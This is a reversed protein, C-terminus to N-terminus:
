VLPLLMKVTFENDSYDIIMEGNYTEVARRMSKIGLGHSNKDKKTTCINNKNDVVIYNTKTNSCKMIFFKEIINGEIIIKKDGENICDCAEIANDILNSFITCVDEDEIFGCKTFNINCIFDIKKYICIEKKETLVIDLITNGTNFINNYHELKSEISNVYSTSDYNRKNLEKICILHNKMDHYLESIKRQNEKIKLYYKYENDIKENLSNIEVYNKSIIIIRNIGLILSINSMFLIVSVFVVEIKDIRSDSMTMLMYKYIIFISVLNAIIPVIMYIIDKKIFKSKGDFLKYMNLGIILLIKGILIAEYRYINSDLLINMSELSNIGFVIGMSLANIGTVVTWYGIVIIVSKITDVEYKNIYIHWTLIIVILSRLDADVNTILSVIMILNVFIFDIDIKKKDIKLSSTYNLVVKCGWVEIISSVITIISSVSLM